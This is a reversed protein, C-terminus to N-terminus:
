EVKFMEVLNQYVNILHDGSLFGLKGLVLDKDLTVIKNLRLISVRKLSNSDDPIILVDFEEHWKLQSTIFSVIIVGEFVALILAPRNKAGTLDTFPFPVLVIDGKKM